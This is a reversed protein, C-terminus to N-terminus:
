IGKEFIFINRKGSSFYANHSVGNMIARSDKFADAAVPVALLFLYKKEALPFVVLPQEIAALNHPHFHGITKVLHALYGYLQGPFAAKLLINVYAGQSVLATLSQSNSYMVDGIIKGYKDDGPTPIYVHIFGSAGNRGPL